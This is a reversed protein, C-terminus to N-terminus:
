TMYQDLNSVKTLQPCNVADSVIFKKQLLMVIKDMDLVAVIMM